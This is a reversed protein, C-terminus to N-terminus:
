RDCMVRMCEHFWLRTLQVVTVSSMQYFAYVVGKVVKWLDRISFVYHPSAISPILKSSTSKLLLVTAKSVKEMLNKVGPHMKPANAELVTSIVAPPTLQLHCHPSDLQLHILNRVRSPTM